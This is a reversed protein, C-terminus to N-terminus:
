ASSHLHQAEVAHPIVPLPEIAVPAREPQVVVQLIAGDLNKFYMLVVRAAIVEWDEEPSTREGLDAERGRPKM